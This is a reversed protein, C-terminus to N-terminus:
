AKMASECQKTSDLGAVGTSPPALPEAAEVVALKTTSEVPPVLVPAVPPQIPELAMAQMVPAPPPALPIDVLM